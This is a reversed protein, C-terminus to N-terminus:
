VFLINSPLPHPSPVPLLFSSLLRPDGRGREEEEEEEEEAGGRRPLRGRKEKEGRGLKLRRRVKAGWEMARTREPLASMGM